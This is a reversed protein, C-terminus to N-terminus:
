SQAAEALRARLPCNGPTMNPYGQEGVGYVRVLRAHLRQRMPGYTQANEAVWLTGHESLGVLIGSTGAGTHHVIDGQRATLDRQGPTRCTRSVEYGHLGLDAPTMELGAMIHQVRQGSIAYGEPLRSTVAETLADVAPAEAQARRAAPARTTDGEFRAMMHTRCTKFEPGKLGLRLLCVRMAYGEHKLDDLDLNPKNASASRSNIAKTALALVFQIYAKVKGAHLTAAFWRFEITTHRDLACLNLGMYRGHRSRWEIRIEDRSPSRMASIADVTDEPTRECWRGGQVRQEINLAYEFLDEKSKTYKVLNRLATGNFADGGVHIHIGCSDNVRAGAARLARIVTQVTDMDDHRLIPSVVEAGDGQISVDSVVRWERGDAMRLSRRNSGDSHGGLAEAVVRATPHLGLGCTEIEIGFTLNNITDTLNM